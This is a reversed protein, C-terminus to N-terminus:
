EHEEEELYKKILENWKQKPSNLKLNDFLWELEEKSVLVSGEELKAYCDMCTTKVISYGEIEKGCVLCAVDTPEKEKKSCGDYHSYKSWMHAGCEPCERDDQESPNIAPKTCGHGCIWKEKYLILDRGCFECSPPKSTDTPKVSLSPNGDKRGYQETEGGLKKLLTKCVAKFPDIAWDELAELVERLINGISAIDYAHENSFGGLAKIQEKLEKIEKELIELQDPLIDQAMSQHMNWSKKKWAELKEIRKFNAKLSLQIDKFIRINDDNIVEIKKELETIKGDMTKIKFMIMEGIYKARDKKDDESM